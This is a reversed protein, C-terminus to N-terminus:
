PADQGGADTTSTANEPAEFTPPPPEYTATGLREAQYWAYFATDRAIAADADPIQLLARDPHTAIATAADFRSKPAAEALDRSRIKPTGDSRWADLLPWGYSLTLALATLAVVAMLARRRGATMGAKPTEWGPSATAVSRQSAINVLRAPAVAQVRAALAGPWAQWDAPDILAEARALAQRCASPSRGLLAALEVEGLGSLLKLLVLIRLGVPLRGLQTLSIPLAPLPGAQIDPSVLLARWFRVALAHVTAAPDAAQKRMAEAVARDGAQADGSCLEAFVAAPRELSEQLRRFATPHATPASPLSMLSSKALGM